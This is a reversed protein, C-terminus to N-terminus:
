EAEEPSYAPVGGFDHGLVLAANQQTILNDGVQDRIPASAM